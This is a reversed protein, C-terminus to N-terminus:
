PKQGQARRELIRVAERYAANEPSRRLLERYFGLARPYDGGVLADSAAREWSVGKPPAPPPEAPTPALLPKPASEAVRQPVVMSRAAAAAPAAGTEAAKTLWPEVAVVGLLLPLVILMGKRAPSADRLQQLIGPKRTPIADSTVTTVQPPEVALPEAMASPPAQPALPPEARAAVAKGREMLATASFYATRDSEDLDSLRVTKAPVPAM